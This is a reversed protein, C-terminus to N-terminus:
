LAKNGMTGKSGIPSTNNPKGAAKNLLAASDGEKSVSSNGTEANARVNTPKKSGTGSKTSPATERAFGSHEKGKVEVPKAGTRAEVKKQPIPSTKNVSLSGAAGIENETNTQTVKQLDSLASEGLDAFDEEEEEDGLDLDGEEGDLEDDGGFDFDEGEGDVDGLDEVEEGSDDGTLAEFEAKLAELEAELDEVKDALEGEGAEGEEGGFDLEGAEDGVDDGAEADLEASDDGGFDGEDGEADDDGAELDLDGDEDEVDDEDEALDEEGFFEEAQIEDKADKVNFEGDDDLDDEMVHDDEAVLEQHINRAKEVFWDHLLRSAEEQQENILLELVKELKDSM